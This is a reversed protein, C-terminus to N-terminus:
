FTISTATSSITAETANTITLKVNGLALSNAFTYDSSEISCNGTYYVISGNELSSSAILVNNTVCGEPVTFAVIINENDDVVALVSGQFLSSQSQPGQNPGQSPAGQNQSGQGMINGNAPGMMNGNDPGMMSGMGQPGGQPGAQMGNAQLEGMGRMDEMNQPGGQMSGMGGMGMTSGTTLVYGTTGSGQPLQNSGGMAIITGGTYTFRNDEDCDIGGEPAGAGLAILVGGNIEITGNSDVSDNASSYAYILGSNIVISSDSTSTNICDDTTNLIIKGGNITVSHKGEIGEPSVGDDNSIGNTYTDERPTAYTTITILGNNIFVDASPDNASTSTIGDETPNFGATLGKGSSEITLKGGNILIYGKGAGYETEEEDGDVKIGKTESGETMNLATITVTGGNQVYGNVPKIATGASTEENLTVNVAGSQICVVDDSVIGNKTNGIVNLIGDGSIVLSGDAKIANTTKTESPDGTLTSEGVLVLYCTPSNETTVDDSAATIKLAQENSEELSTISVNNLTLVFDNDSKITVGVTSSGSLVINYNAKDGLTITTKTDKAKIKVDGDAYSDALSSLNIEVTTYEDANYEYDEANYTAPVQDSSPTVAVIADEDSIWGEVLASYTGSKATSTSSNESSSSSGSASSSSSSNGTADPNCSTCAIGIVCFVLMIVFITTKVTTKMLKEGNENLSYLTLRLSVKFISEIIVFYYSNEQKAIEKM